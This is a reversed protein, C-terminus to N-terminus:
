RSLARPATAHRFWNVRERIGTIGGLAEVTQARSHEAPLPGPEDLLLNLEFGDDFGMVRAVAAAESLRLALPSPEAGEATVIAGLLTAPLAWERALQANVEMSDVGFVQREAALPQHRARVLQMVHQYRDPSRSAYSLRGIQHLLGATFATQLEEPSLGDHTAFSEALLGITLLWRWYRDPDLGSEDLRDYEARTLAAVTIGRAAELGIRVIANRATSVQEVPASQASNAARLLGATLGPDGEIVALFDRLEAQPNWLLVMGRARPTPMVPLDPAASARYFTM